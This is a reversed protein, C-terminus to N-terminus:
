PVVRFNTAICHTRRNNPTSRVRTRAQRVPLPQGMNVTPVATLNRRLM